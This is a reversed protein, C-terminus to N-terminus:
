ADDFLYAELGSVAKKFGERGGFHGLIETLTGLDDFPEMQLERPDQLNELGEAVFKALLAELVQKRVGTQAAICAQVNARNARDQRPIPHVGYALSALVDYTAINAGLNRALDGTSVMADRELQSLLAARKDPDRWTERLEARTPCLATVIRRAHEDIPIEIPKWDQDYRTVTVAVKLVEVDPIVYKERRQGRRRPTPEEEDALDPPAIPDGPRPEYVQEPPGDFTEDAFHRTADRFDLITFWTKGYDERVRTGRGIIQKFEGPSGIERDLVIVKCTQTDVGTTLLQATTAIVPYAEAPAIFSDIQLKGESDDSTIRQVYREDRAVLDQNENVLASRMRSAHDTDECFVITKAMRDTQKLYDSVYHAVLNTRRELVLTRDFDQRKYTREEVKRGYKDIVGRGPDYGELDKDLAVRIVKYPALFGDEIGERLSYTFIPDGFYDINSVHETEKPTATLGIQTAGSFYQLINRWASEDAASGRHCEDVIVLDFFERSFQKYINKEEENGSVAQYLAMYIEFSKDAQRHKIKTLANGLPLFDNNRAQDVLINRDALFLVRKKAKSKWLRWIIQFATFTKGTGTAMVLLIRSQGKAIAEVVRNVAKIQYYRPAKDETGLHWDQAVIKEQETTLGRAKCWRRWLEDRSPFADLPIEREVTKNPDTRDCELFADGNSSYAFPADLLKAYAQAQQMGGGLPHNNDKVEVIALPQNPKYFLVIDARLATGSIRTRGARGKTTIRDPTLSYEQRIHDQSWGSSTRTVAPLVFKSIIDAESLDKKNMDLGPRSCPVPHQMGPWSGLEDSEYSSPFSSKQLPM